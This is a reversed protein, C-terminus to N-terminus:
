GRAPVLTQHDVADAEVAAPSYPWALQEGRAWVELQDAYHVSAPHGSTGTLNVWTSSDLDGLDVVMRMSPASTVAYSGSAADWGTADVISSGGGVPQGTPNVLRHLVGPVGDGGLVPHQPAAVHLKGWAWDETRSGLQATLEHRATVLARALVDDRGEVVGSTTRDDWWPSTPNELM